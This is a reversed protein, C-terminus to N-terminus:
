QRAVIKTWRVLQGVSVGAEPEGAGAQETGEGEGGGGGEREEQRARHRDLPDPLDDVGRGAGAAPM